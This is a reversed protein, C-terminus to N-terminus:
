VAVRRFGTMADVEDLYTQLQDARETETWGLEAGVIEALEPAEKVGHGVVEYFLHNRRILIDCLTLGM